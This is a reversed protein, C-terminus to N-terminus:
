TWPLFVGNARKRAGGKWIAVAQAPNCNPNTTFRFAATDITNRHQFHSSALVVLILNREKKVFAMTYFSGGLVGPPENIKYIQLNNVAGLQAPKAPQIPLIVISSAKREDTM